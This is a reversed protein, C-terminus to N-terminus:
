PVRCVILIFDTEFSNLSYDHAGSSSMIDDIHLLAGQVPADESISIDVLFFEFFDETEGPEHDAMFAQDGVGIVEEEGVHPLIGNDYGTIGFAFDVDEEVHASVASVTDDTGIVAVGLVEHTGVVTPGETIFSFEDAYRSELFGVVAFEVDLVEAQNLGTDIDVGANDEGAPGVVGRGEFGVEAICPPIKVRAKIPPISTLLGIAGLLPSLRNVPFCRDIVTGVIIMPGDTM